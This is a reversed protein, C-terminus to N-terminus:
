VNEMVMALTLYLYRIVQENEKAPTLDGHFLSCRIQYVIEMYAAFLREPNNEVWLDEDIRIKNRGRRLKLVSEFKPQGNNWDIVCHELSIIKDPFKDYQIHANKLSRHLAALNGNFRNGKADTARLLGAFTDYLPHGGRKLLELRARDKNESFRYRMWANLSFWLSVFLPIYDIEAKKKWSSIHEATSM